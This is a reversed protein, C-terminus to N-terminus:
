VNNTYDWKQHSHLNTHGSHFIIHLTRLFNFISSGYYEAIESRPIIRLIHSISIGFFVPLGINMAANNIITLIHFCGLHRELPFLLHPIHM